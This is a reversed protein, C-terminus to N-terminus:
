RGSGGRQDPGRGLPAWARLCPRRWGARAQKVLYHYRTYAALYDTLFDIIEERGHRPQAEPFGRIPYYDADPDWFEAWWAAFAEPADAPVFGDKLPSDTAELYRRVVEVNEQSM